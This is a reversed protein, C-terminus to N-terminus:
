NKSEINRLVIVFKLCDTMEENDRLKCGRGDYAHDFELHIAERGLEKIWTKLDLQVLDVGDNNMMEYSLLPCSFKTLDIQKKLSNGPEIVVKETNSEYDSNRKLVLDINVPNADRNVITINFYDFAYDSYALQEEKICLKNVYNEIVLDNALLVKAVGPSAAMVLFIFITTSTSPPLYCVVDLFAKIAESDDKKSRIIKISEEM